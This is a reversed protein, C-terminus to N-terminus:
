GGLEKLWASAFSRLAETSTPGARFCAKWIGPKAEYEPKVFRQNGNDLRLAAKFDIDATQQLFQRLRLKVLDNPNPPLARGEALAKKYEEGEQQFRERDQQEWGARDAAPTRNLEAVADLIPREAAERQDAPM